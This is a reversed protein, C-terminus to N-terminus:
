VAVYDGGCTEAEGTALSRLVADIVRHAVRCDNGGVPPLTQDVIADVFAQQELVVHGRGQRSILAEPNGGGFLLHTNRHDDAYAAGSSGIVSWADYHEGDPLSSSFDLIAMGGGPFGFHLQLYNPSNRKESGRGLAYVESPIAGFLWIARDIDRIVMEAVDVEESGRWRHVRLLGPEGLSGDALRAQIARSDPAFRLTDGLGFRVDAQECAAVIAEAEASTKALTAALLVHKHAKAATIASSIQANTGQAKTGQATEQVASPRFVVADFKDSYKDLAEDLSDVVISAGIAQATSSALSADADAVVSFNGRTLQMALDGWFANDGSCGVLALRILPESM